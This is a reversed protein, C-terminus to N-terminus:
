RAYRLSLLNVPCKICHVKSRSRSLFEVGRKNLDYQDISGVYELILHIPIKKKWQFKLAEFFWVMFKLMKTKFGSKKAM